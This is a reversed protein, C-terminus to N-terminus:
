AFFSSPVATRRALGISSTSPSSAISLSAQLGVAQRTQARTESKVDTSLLMKRSSVTAYWRVKMDRRVTLVSLRAKNTVVAFAM